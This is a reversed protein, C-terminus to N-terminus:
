QSASLREAPWFNGVKVSGLEGFYLIFAIYHLKM